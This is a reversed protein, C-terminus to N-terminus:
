RMLPLTKSLFNGFMFRANQKERCSGDSVNGMRLLVTRPM